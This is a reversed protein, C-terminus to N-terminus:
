KWAKAAHAGDDHREWRMCRVIDIGNLAKQKIYIPVAM